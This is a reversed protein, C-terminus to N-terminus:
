SGPLVHQRDNYRYDFLKVWLPEWAAAASSCEASRIDDSRVVTTVKTGNACEPYTIARGPIPQAYAGLRAIAPGAVEGLPGCRM